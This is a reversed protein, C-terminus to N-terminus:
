NPKESGNERSRAIVKDPTALFDPPAGQPEIKLLYDGESDRLIDWDNDLIPFPVNEGMAAPHRLIARLDDEPCRVVEPYTLFSWGHNLTPLRWPSTSTRIVLRLELSVAEEPM